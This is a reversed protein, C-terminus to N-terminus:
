TLYDILLLIFFWISPYDILEYFMLYFWNVEFFFIYVHAWVFLLKCLKLKRFFNLFFCLPFCIRYERELNILFSINSRYINIFYWTLLAWWMQTPCDILLFDFILYFTLRNLEYYFMLYFRDVEISLIYVHAWIFLLLYM